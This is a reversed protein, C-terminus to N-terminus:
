RYVRYRGDGRCNSEHWPSRCMFVPLMLRRIVNKRKRVPLSAPPHEPISHPPLLDIDATVGFESQIRAALAHILQGRREEDSIRCQIQLIIKEQATVFAIADGSHIEPEQEAIYEIDQPWINRGRIIILDKIRGTVYLYGDLLYGLDGTDLWGTAAIEDQSIQDGFYGSMLSPGSICIHGVVREAVPIDAENRIEIGHEPM